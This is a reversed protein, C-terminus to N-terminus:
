ARSTALYSNKASPRRARSRKTFPTWPLPLVSLKAQQDKAQERYRNRAGRMQRIDVDPMADIQADIEAEEEGLDSTRKSAIARRQYVDDYEDKWTRDLPPRLLDQSSYYLATLKERNEDATRSEEILAAIHDRRRRGEPSADDLSEGCICAAHDLRDELM